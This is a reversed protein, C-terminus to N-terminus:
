LKRIEEVLSELDKRSSGGEKTTDAAEDALEKARTRAGSGGDGVADALVAALEGADPAVGLGGACARVAISTEEVLLRANVFQDAAMPWALMPVGAALAELMSNWGCHTMFWGVAAHRLIAVQPAWGRVVLGRRAAAARAEFGEPLVVGDGGGVAWVFPVASRDLAEALAGAVTPTLM